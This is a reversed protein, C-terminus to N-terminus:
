IFINKLQNYDPSKLNYDVQNEPYDMNWMRCIGEFYTIEHVYTDHTNLWKMLNDIEENTLPTNKDSHECYEPELIKIYTENGTNLNVLHFHPILVEDKSHSIVEFHSFKGYHSIEDKNEDYDDHNYREDHEVSNQKSIKFEKLFQKILDM